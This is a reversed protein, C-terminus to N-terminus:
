KLQMQLPYDRRADRDGKNRLFKYSSGSRINEVVATEDLDLDQVDQLQKGRKIHIVNCKKSNWQLVMDKMAKNTSRLMRNLKSESAAFVYLLHTVKTDLPKSMRYGATANLLWSANLSRVVKGIWSPLRHVEMM